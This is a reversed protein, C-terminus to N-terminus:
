NEPEAFVKSQTPLGPFGYNYDTDIALANPFGAGPAAEIQLLSDETLENDSEWENYEQALTQWEKKEKQSPLQSKMKEHHRKSLQMM